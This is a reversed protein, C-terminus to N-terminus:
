VLSIVKIEKFLFDKKNLTLIEFVDNSIMTAALFLDFMQTSKKLKYKKLLNAFIQITQGNPYIMNFSGSERYKEAELAVTKQDLPKTIRKPNVMISCFEAINQSSIVARIKGEMAKKHFIAAQKYFQSDLDQNYVLINTDFLIKRSSIKM